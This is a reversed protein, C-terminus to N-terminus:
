EMTLQSREGDKCLDIDWCLCRLGQIGLDGARLVLRFSQSIPEVRVRARRLKCRNCKLEPSHLVSDVLVVEVESLDFLLSRKKRWRERHGDSKSMRRRVETARRLTNTADDTRLRKMRQVYSLVRGEYKDNQVPCSM